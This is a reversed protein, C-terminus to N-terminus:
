SFKMLINYSGASLNRTMRWGFRRASCNECGSPCPIVRRNRITQMLRWQVRTMDGGAQGDLFANEVETGARLAGTHLFHEFAACGDQPRFHMDMLRVGFTDAMDAVFRMADAQMQQVARSPTDTQGLVARARTTALRRRAEKWCFSSGRWGHYM